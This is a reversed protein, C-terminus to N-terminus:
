LGTTEPGPAVQAIRGRAAEIAQAAGQLILAAALAPLPVYIVASSIPLSIAEVDWTREILGFGYRLMLVGFAVVCLQIAIEAKARASAPLLDILMTIRIHSRHRLAIMWGAIAAWVLFMQAMEDTWALPANLQRSVVGLVVCALMALLTLVAVAQTLRDALAVLIKSV